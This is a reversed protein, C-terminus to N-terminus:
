PTIVLCRTASQLHMAKSHHRGMLQGMITAQSVALSVVMDQEQHHKGTGLIRGKGRSRITHAMAQLVM